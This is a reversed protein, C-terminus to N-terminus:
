REMDDHLHNKSAKKTNSLSSQRENKIQEKYYDLTGRVSKRETREMKQQNIKENVSLCYKDFIPKITPNNVFNQLVTLDNVRLADFKGELVNIKEELTNKITELGLVEDSLKQRTGSLNEIEEQLNQLFVCENNSQEILENLVAQENENLEAISRAKLQEITM